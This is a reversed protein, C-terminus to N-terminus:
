AVERLAYRHHLGGIRLAAVVQADASPRLTVQRGEPADKALSLHTRDEHYNRIYLLVLRRLHRENLMIVHDLLERRCSGIWREGIANEQPRQPSIRVPKIGM